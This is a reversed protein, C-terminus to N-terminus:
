EREFLRAIGRAGNFHDHDLSPESCLNGQMDDPDSYGELM